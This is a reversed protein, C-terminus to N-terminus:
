RGVTAAHSARWRKVVEHNAVGAANIAAAEATSYPGRQERTDLRRWYWGAGRPPGGGGDRWDLFELEIQM